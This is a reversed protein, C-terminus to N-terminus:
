PAGGAASAASGNGTATTGATGSGTATTGATGSVTSVSGAGANGAAASASGSGAATGSGTGAPAASGGSPAASATTLAVSGGSAATGSTAPAASASGAAGTTGSCGQSAPDLMCKYESCGFDQDPVKDVLYKRQSEDWHAARRHVTLTPMKAVIDPSLHGSAVLDQLVDLGIPRMRFRFELRPLPTQRGRPGFACTRTHSGAMPMSPLPITKSKDLKAAEWFMHTEKGNEDLVYDRMMCPHAPQDPPEEVQGDQIVGGSYIMQDNEDFGDVELWMRRDQSAGSPQAHAAQTEFLVDFTAFQRLQVDFYGISKPLQCSEVALRMADAHPFDTLPLDVAPFFHEHVNRTSTLVGQIGSSQAALTPFNGVEMHCNQCSQFTLPKTADAMFTQTYEHLTQELHYGNQTVIDHCTGCMLSSELANPDHNKSRQVKHVSPILAGPIAARMTTDNALDIM